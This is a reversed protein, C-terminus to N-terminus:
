PNLCALKAINLVYLLYFQCVASMWYTSVTKFQTAFLFFNLRSQLPAIFLTLSPLYECRSYQPDLLTPCYFNRSMNTSASVLIYSNPFLNSSPFNTYTSLQWFKCMSLLLSLLYCSPAHPVPLIKLLIFSVQPHKLHQYFLQLLFLSGSFVPSNFHFILKLWM